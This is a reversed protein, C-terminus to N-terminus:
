KPCDWPNVIAVGCRAFDAVNRTAVTLGHVSATAAILSDPVPKPDPVHLPAAMRAIAETVSLIRGAYRPM